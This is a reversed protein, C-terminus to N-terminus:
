MYEDLQGMLSWADNERPVKFVWSQDVGTEDQFELSIQMPAKWFVAGDYWDYLEPEDRYRIQDEASLTVGYLDPPLPFPPALYRFKPNLVDSLFLVRRNKDWNIGRGFDNHRGAEEYYFDTLGNEKRVVSLRVPRNRGELDLLPKRTTFEIKDQDAIFHIHSFGDGRYDIMRASIFLQRLLEHRYELKQWRSSFENGREWMSLGQAYVSLLMGILMSFISLSILVEILTFGHNGAPRGRRM